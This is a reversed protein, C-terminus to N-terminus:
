YMTDWSVLSMWPVEGWISGWDRLVYYRLIGLVDVTSEGMYVGWDRLVYYGLIGLVDLISGGMYVGLVEICLTRSYWPCGLYM